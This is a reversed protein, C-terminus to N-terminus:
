LEEQLEMIEGNGLQANELSILENGIVLFDDATVGMM